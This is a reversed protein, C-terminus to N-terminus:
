PLNRVVRFGVSVSSYTSVLGDPLFRSASRCEAATGGWRGGRLVRKLGSAPGTPDPGGALPSAFWDLCWEWVNGHTDYLGWCNATKMGVPHPDTSGDNNGSWWGLENLQNTSSGAVGDNYYTTTGARCVYEWQAETPLDFGGFGTKSRLKGLFSNSSVHPGTSFWNVPPVSNTAGRIDEYSANKAKTSDSSLAMIRAWQAVTVQFVSAYFDKTMTVNYQPGEELGMRFAGASVRRLVLKETAYVADNTVGFWVNTWRGETILRPDGPYIYEVHALTGAANTLDVIMYVPAPAATLTVNFEALVGQNTCATVTPDWVIRHAGDELVGNLDGTLSNDPLAVPNVGNHASVAIDIRQTVNALVYDIDVLRSWPWRQRVVVQSVTPEAVAGLTLCVAMMGVFGNITRM